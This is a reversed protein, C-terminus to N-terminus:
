VFFCLKIMMFAVFWSLTTIRTWCLLLASSWSAFLSTRFVRFNLIFINNWLIWVEENGLLLMEAL